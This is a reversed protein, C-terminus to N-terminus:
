EVILIYLNYDGLNGSESHPIFFKHTKFNDAIKNTALNDSRVWGYIHDIGIKKAETVAFKILASGVDINLFKRDVYTSSQAAYKSILPNAFLPILSQWGIIQNSELEAVYFISRPTKSFLQFLENKLEEVSVSEIKKGIAQDQNQLWIEFIRHFDSENSKRITINEM